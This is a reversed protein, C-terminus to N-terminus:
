DLPRGLRREVWRVLEGKGDNPKCEAVFPKALAKEREAAKV